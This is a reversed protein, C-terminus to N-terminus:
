RAVSPDLHTSRWGAGDGFGLQRLHQRLRNRWPWGHWADIRMGLGMVDSAQYPNAGYEKPDGSMVHPGANVHSLGLYHGVEHVAVVQEIDERKVPRVDRSSLLGDIGDRRGSWELAAPQDLFVMDGCSAGSGALNGGLSCLYTRLPPTIEAMRACLLVMQADAEQPRARFRCRLAHPVSSRSPSGGRGPHYLWLKRDWYKVVHFFDARFRDWSAGDWPIVYGASPDLGPSALVLASSQDPALTPDFPRLEVTVRIEVSGYGEADPTLSLTSDYNSRRIEHGPM